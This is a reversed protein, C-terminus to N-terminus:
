GNGHEKAHEIADATASRIRGTMTDANNDGDHEEGDADRFKVWGSGRELEIQLVYEEPLDRAAAQMAAEGENGSSEWFARLMEAKDSETLEALWEDFTQTV